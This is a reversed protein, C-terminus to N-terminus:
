WLLQFVTFLISKNKNSLTIMSLHQLDKTQMLHAIAILAIARWPIKNLHIEADVQYGRKM